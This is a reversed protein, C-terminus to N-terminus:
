AKKAHNDDYQVTEQRLVKLWQNHIDEVEPHFDGHPLAFLM